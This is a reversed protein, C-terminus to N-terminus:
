AFCRRVHMCVYMICCIRVMDLRAMCEDIHRRYGYAASAKDASRLMSIVQADTLRAEGSEEALMTRVKAVKRGSKMDFPEGDEDSDQNPDWPVRLQEGNEKPM